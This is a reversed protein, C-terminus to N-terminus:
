NIPRVGDRRRRSEMSDDLKKAKTSAEGVLVGVVTGRRDAIGVAM